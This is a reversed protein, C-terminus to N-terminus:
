IKRGNILLYSISLFHHWQDKWPNKSYIVIKYILDSESRKERDTEYMQKLSRNIICKM